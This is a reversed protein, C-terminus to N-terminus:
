KRRKGRTKKRELEGKRGRTEKKKLIEGSFRAAASAWMSARRALALAPSIVMPSATSLYIISIIITIFTVRKGHESAHAREVGREREIRSRNSCTSINTRHYSFLCRYKPSCGSSYSPKKREQTNRTRPAKGIQHGVRCKEKEKRKKFLEFTFRAIRSSIIRSGVVVQM